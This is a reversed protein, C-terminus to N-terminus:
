RKAPLCALPEVRWYKLVFIGNLPNHRLKGDSRKIAGVKNAEIIPYLVSTIKLCSSFLVELRCSTNQTPCLSIHGKLGASQLLFSLGSLSIPSKNKKWRSAVVIAGQRTGDGSHGSAWHIVASCCQPCAFSFSTDATAKYKVGLKGTETIESLVRHPKWYSSGTDDEDSSREAFSLVHCTHYLTTNHLNFCSSSSYNHVKKASLRWDTPGAKDDTRKNQKVYLSFLLRISQALYIFWGTLTRSRHVYVKYNDINVGVYWGDGVRGRRRNSRQLRSRMVGLRVSRKLDTLGYAQIM